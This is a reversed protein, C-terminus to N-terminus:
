LRRADTAYRRPQRRCDAEPKLLPFMEFQIEVLSGDHHGDRVPHLLGRPDHFEAARPQGEEDHHNRAEAERVLTGRGSPPSVVLYLM